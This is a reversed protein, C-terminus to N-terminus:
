SFNIGWGYPGLTTPVAHGSSRPGHFGTAYTVWWITLFLSSCAFMSSQRAGGAQVEDDDEQIAPRCRYWFM